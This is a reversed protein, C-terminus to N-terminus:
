PQLQVQSAILKDRANLQLPLYKSEMKAIVGAVTKMMIKKVYIRTIMNKRMMGGAVQVNMMIAWIEVFMGGDHSPCSHWRHCGDRHALSETPSIPIIAISTLFLTLITILPYM